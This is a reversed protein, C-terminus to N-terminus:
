SANGGAAKIKEIKSQPQARYYVHSAAESIFIPLYAKGNVTSTDVYDFIFDFPKFLKKQRIKEGFNNADFQIKNYVECEWASLEKNTNNEKNKIVKRFLMDAPNEGAVVVVEQLTFDGSNLQFNIEQYQFKKISKVQKEYGIYTTAISDARERTEFYYEGDFNTTTGITTGILFVNAFPIAEGTSADTVVGRIKTVQAFGLLPIFLAVIFAIFIRQRLLM